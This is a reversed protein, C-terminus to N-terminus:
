MGAYAQRRANEVFEFYDTLARDDTSGADGMERSAPIWAAPDPLPGAARALEWFGLNRVREGSQREYRNLFIDAAQKIGRLYMNLRFYAVDLAPDGYAAADWDLVASIRGHRWLVNGPWFDMHVLVGPVREIDASLDRVASFITKSLPHGAMKEPYDRELFYLGLDNGAYLLSREGENPRVHHITLLLDALCSAWKEVDAPAAVQKGEVMRTVIGPAGLVEGTEDLYLPEPAPIGHNRAIRLGHFEASAREKADWADPDTLLKAMLRITNGGTSRCELINVQNTFAGTAPGISVLDLDPAITQLISRAHETSLIKMNAM